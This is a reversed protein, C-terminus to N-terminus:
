IFLIVIAAGACLALTQCSRMRLKDNQSLQQLQQQCEARVSEIGKLQGNLEFYGLSHGLIQLCQKTAFPAYEIGRLVSKMCKEVNPSIQNDMEKGLLDFARQITGNCRAAVRRCLEPLPTLHYNLECSIYDLAALLQKLEVIQQRHSLVIHFGFGGCGALIMVAGIVKLIM